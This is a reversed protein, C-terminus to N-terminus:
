KGVSSNIQSFVPIVHDDSPAPARELAPLPQAKVAPRLGKSAILAAWIVLGAGLSLAGWVLAILGVIGFGSFMEM